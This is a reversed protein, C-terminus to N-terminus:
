FRANVRLNITRASLYNPVAYRRNTVDTVWLYSVTNNVQLLNFVELGITMSKIRNALRSRYQKPNDEDIVIKSFGIDVRRYSPFRFKDKHREKGPPGFPLGTGYVLTMNMKFTPFKPLYDQFFLSFTFRQDTPRAIKGPTNRLSDVPVNNFTYGPVIQEGDSNFYTYYEDGKIDEETKLVSISAWSEVGEVFEGNVRLDAGMAYGESNNNAFYRIRLNDIKYPVLNELQKYYVETVMRFERGWSLFTYDAGAIFHVSKQAKVNTNVKGDLDRLERYFPPQYYYGGALRFSLNRFKRPAWTLSARPSFVTEGNLSWYNVRMGAQVSFSREEGFYWHDMLYASVRYSDLTTDTKIVDQLLIQQNPDAPGGINDPPHPLNFEASDIYQWESLLDSVTEHQFRMGFQIKSAQRDYYGKLDFNFINADFYNRAHQIYTGVGRNFAVDGFNDSGIDKELEDIYYQGQIDFTEDEVTRYVSGILKIRLRDNFKHSLSLAGTGSQYRDVEQGDFYITLRLAENITGFETQRNEPIIQYKNVSFNGLFSLETKSNLHYTVLSQVDTFVPKYEGKTELSRFLYSSSKYRVAALYSLNKKKNIGELHLGSGLLSAYASGGFKEPRRYTIDLVSSMKDGYSAEFGGASFSISSVLDSNIFSLGEQQGSRVLVPRYVEIDNVYVLNEDYNGGRVSYQSSLENNAVVGPMTKLVAEFSGSANPIQRVSKPNIPTFTTRRIQQDKVEIEPLPTSAIELRQEIERQEGPKLTLSIRSTTYGISSFVVEIEVGAPVSIEFKGDDATAMGGPQGAVAVNVGTLAKGSKDLVRGKVTGKIQAFVPTTLITGTLLLSFFAFILLHRNV